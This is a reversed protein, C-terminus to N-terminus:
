PLYRVIRPGLRNAVALPLRQWLRIALRYKPNDPNLAPLAASRPLWYHWYLQTPQAGWQRKFRYTGSDTTSRGFDFRRGGQEIAHKLAEWYLLM